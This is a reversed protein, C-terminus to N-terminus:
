LDCWDKRKNGTHSPRMFTIDRMLIPRSAASTYLLSDPVHREKSVFVFLSRIFTSHNDPM